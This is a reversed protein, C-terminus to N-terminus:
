EKIAVWTLKELDVNKPCYIKKTYYIVEEGTEEDVYPKEATDYMKYGENAEIVYSGSENLEIKVNEMM